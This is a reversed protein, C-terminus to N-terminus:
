EHFQMDPTHCTGVASGLNSDNLDWDANKTSTPFIKGMGSENSEAATMGYGQLLVM